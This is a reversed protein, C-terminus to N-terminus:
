RGGLGSLVSGPMPMAGGQMQLGQLWPMKRPDANQPLLQGPVTAAVQGHPQTSTQPM